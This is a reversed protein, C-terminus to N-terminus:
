LLTEMETKKQLTKQPLQPYQYGQFSLFVDRLSCAAQEINSPIVDIELTCTHADNTYTSPTHHYYAHTYPSPTHHYFYMCTYAIYTPTSCAHPYPSMCVASSIGHLPPPITVDIHIGCAMFNFVVRTLCLTGVYERDCSHVM